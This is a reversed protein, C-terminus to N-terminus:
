KAGSRERQIERFIEDRHVPVSRHAEIGLRVRDGQQHELVMVTIPDVPVFRDGDKVYLQGAGTGGIRIKEDTKRQLCLM